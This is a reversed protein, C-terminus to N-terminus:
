CVEFMLVYLSICLTVTCYALAVIMLKEDSDMGM